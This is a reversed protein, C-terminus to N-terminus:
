YEERQGGYTYKLRDSAVSGSAKGNSQVPQGAFGLAGGREVKGTSPHWNCAVSDLHELSNFELGQTQALISRVKSGFERATSRVKSSFIILLVLM